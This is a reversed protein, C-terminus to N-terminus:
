NNKIPNGKADTFSGVLILIFDILTGMNRMRRIHPATSHRNRNKRCLFPTSWSMRPLFMIITSCAMGPREQERRKAERQDMRRVERM